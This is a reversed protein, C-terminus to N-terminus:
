DLGSKSGCSEEFQFVIELVTNLSKRSKTKLLSRLIGIGQMFLQRTNAEIYHAVVLKPYLDLKSFKKMRESQLGSTCLQELFAGLSLLLNEGLEQRMAQLSTNMLYPHLNDIFDSILMLPDLKLIESQGEKCALQDHLWLFSLQM